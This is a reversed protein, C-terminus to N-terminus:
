SFTHFFKFCHVFQFLVNAPECKYGFEQQCIIEPLDPDNTGDNCIGVWGGDSCSLPVGSVRFLGEPTLTLRQNYLQTSNEGCM